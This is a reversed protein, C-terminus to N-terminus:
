GRGPTALFDTLQQRRRYALHSGLLHGGIWAAVALAAALILGWAFEADSIRTRTGSPAVATWYLVSPVTLVGALVPVLMYPTFVLVLWRVIMPRWRHRGAWRERVPLPHYPFWIGLWAAFGLAGLPVVAIWIVSLMTTTVHGDDIGIAIAAVTCLPTVLAWLVLNKALWLRRLMRRDPLAVITRAADSGLLNTAPVDSYMWVALVLAFSLPGTFRFVDDLLKQPLLTRLAIVLVGNIAVVSPVEYPPHWARRWQMRMAARLSAPLDSGGGSRPAAPSSM